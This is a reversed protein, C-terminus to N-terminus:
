SGACALVHEGATANPKTVSVTSNEASSRFKLGKWSANSVADFSRGMRYSWLPCEFAECDRVAGPQNGCCDLCKMRIAEQRTIRIQEDASLYKDLDRM